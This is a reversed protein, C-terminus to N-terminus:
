VLELWPDTEECLVSVFSVGVLIGRMALRDDVNCEGVVTLDLEDITPELRVLRLRPLKLACVVSWCFEDNSSNPM